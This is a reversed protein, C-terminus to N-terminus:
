AKLFNNGGLFRKVSLCIGFQMELSHIYKAAEEMFYAMQLHDKKQHGGKLRAFIMSSDKSLGLNDFDEYYYWSQKVDLM